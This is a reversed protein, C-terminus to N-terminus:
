NAHEQEIVDLLLTENSGGVCNGNQQEVQALNTHLILIM